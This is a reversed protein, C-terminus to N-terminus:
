AISIQKWQTWRKTSSVDNPTSDRSKRAITVTIVGGDIKVRSAEYWSFDTKTNCRRSWYVDGEQVVSEGSVPPVNNSVHIHRGM